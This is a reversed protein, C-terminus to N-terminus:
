WARGRKRYAAETRWHVRGNAYNALKGPIFAEM